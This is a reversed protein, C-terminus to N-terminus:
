KKRKSPAKKAAKKPAKRKALTAKQETIVPAIETEDVEYIRGDGGCMFAKGPSPMAIQETITEGTLPNKGTKTRFNKHGKPDFKKANAMFDPPMLLVGM